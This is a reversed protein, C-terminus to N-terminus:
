EKTVLIVRNDILFGEVTEGAKADLNDGSVKGNKVLKCVAEILARPDGFAVVGDLLKDGGALILHIGNDIANDFLSLVKRSGICEVILVNALSDELLHVDFKRAVVTKNDGGAREVWRKRINLVLGNKVVRTLTSVGVKDVKGIHRSKGNGTSETRVAHGVTDSQDGFLEVVIRKEVKGLTEKGDLGSLNTCELTDSSALTVQEVRGNRDGGGGDNRKNNNTTMEGAHGEVPLQLLDLGSKGFLGRSRGVVSEISQRVSSGGLRAQAPNKRSVCSEGALLNSNLNPVNGRLIKASKNRHNGM